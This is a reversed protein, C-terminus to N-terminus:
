YEICFLAKSKDQMGDVKCFKQPSLSIFSSDSFLKKKLRLLTCWIIKVKNIQNHRIFVSPITESSDFANKKRNMWFIKGLGLM